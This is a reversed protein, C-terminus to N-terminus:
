SNVFNQMTGVNSVNNYGISNLIMKAMNSRAGSLCFVIFHKDEDHCKAMEAIANVPMNTAGPVSGAAFEPPNRVDVLIANKEEILARAETGSIIASM